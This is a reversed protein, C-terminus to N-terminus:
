ELTARKLADKFHNDKQLKNMRDQQMAGATRRIRKLKPQPFLVGGDEGGSSASTTLSSIATVSTGEGVPPTLFPNVDNVTDGRKKELARRVQMQMTRNKSEVDTFNAARMAQAVTLMPARLLLDVAARIRKDARVGRGLM